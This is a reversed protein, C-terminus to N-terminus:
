KFIKAVRVGLSTGYPFPIVSLILEGNNKQLTIPSGNDLWIAKDYDFDDLSVFSSPKVIAVNPNAGM